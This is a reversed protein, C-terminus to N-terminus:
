GEPLAPEDPLARRRELVFYSVPVRLPGLAVYAKGLLLDDSDASGRVIYDRLLRAPQFLSNRGQSYDLLAANQHRGSGAAPEVSFFGFRKPRAESPRAIWDGDLGNQEVPTNCGYPRGEADFFAKVFKRFGLLSAIWATNCGRFEHGTLNSISPAQGGEFADKRARRGATALRVFEESAGSM